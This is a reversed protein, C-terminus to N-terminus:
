DLTRTARADSNLKTLGFPCHGDLYRTLILNYLPETSYLRGCVVKLVQSTCLTQYSEQNSSSDPNLIMRSVEQIGAGDALSLKPWHAMFVISIYLYVM